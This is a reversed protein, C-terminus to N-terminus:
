VPKKMGTLVIKSIQKADLVKEAFAYVESFFDKM